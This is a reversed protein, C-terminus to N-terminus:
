TRMVAPARGLHRRMLVETGRDTTEVSVDDTLHRMLDLGRGGGLDRAPRWRGFDRVRVVVEQDGVEADVAVEADGPGYAHEIANALAENAALVLEDRAESALGARRLWQGLANRALRLESPHAPLRLMLPALEHQLHVVLLAVDDDTAREGSALLHDALAAGARPGDRLAEALRALSRDLGEGRREVLGDTYLVLASGPEVETRTQQYRARRLAGVPPGGPADIFRVDGDVSRLAPPPHGATAIDLAGTTPDLLLVALTAMDSETIGAFHRNLRDLMAGPRLGELAYVQLAIRMRGMASAARVGHGVVDGIALFLRGDPLVIADYWDGGIRLGKTGPVYRGTVAVGPVDPLTAPLLSRQLVEVVEREREYRQAHEVAPAIRRAVERALQIDDEDHRRENNSWMLALVGLPGAAGTLPVFLRSGRDKGVDTVVPVGRRFADCPPLPDDIHYSNTPEILEAREDPGSDVAVLRLRDGDHLYVGARDGLDPLLLRTVEHLRQSIDLEITLLEGIRALLDLRATARSAENALRVGEIVQAIRRGLELVVSVDEHHYRRGSDNTYLLTIAGIRSGAFELPATISSCADLVSLLRLHWVDAADRARQSEDVRPVFHPVGTAITRGTPGGAALITSVRSALSDLRSETDGDRHAIRVREPRGHMNRVYVICADGFDPIALYAARTLADERELALSSLTGARAFMRVEREARVRPTIDLLACGITEDGAPYLSALWHRESGTVPDAGADIEHQEVATGATSVWRIAPALTNWANPLLTALNTRAVEAFPYGVLTAFAENAELIEGNAALFALAVPARELRPDVASPRTGSRESPAASV